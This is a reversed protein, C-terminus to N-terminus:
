RSTFTASAWRAASSGCLWPSSRGVYLLFTAKVTFLTVLALGGLLVGVAIAV